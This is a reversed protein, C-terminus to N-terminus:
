RGTKAAASLQSATFVPVEPAGLINSGNPVTRALAALEAETDLSKRPPWVADPGHAPWILLHADDSGLQLPPPEPPDFGLIWFGVPGITFVVQFANLPDGEQPPPQDPTAVTMGWEHMLIRQETTGASDFTGTFHLLWVHSGYLPTQHRGFWRYQDESFLSGDGLNFGQLTLMTKTAWTALTHQEVATIVRRAGALMPGLISEVSTELRHMWGNNCGGCYDRVVMDFNPGPRAHTEDADFTIQRRLYENQGDTRFYDRLWQGFIHERTLTADTGCFKCIM